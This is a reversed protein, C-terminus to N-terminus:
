DVVSIVPVFQVNSAARLPGFLFLCCKSFSLSAAPYGKGRKVARALPRGIRGTAVSAIEGVYPPSTDLKLADIESSAIVELDIANAPTLSNNMSSIWNEVWGTGSGAVLQSSRIPPIPILKHLPRGRPLQDFSFPEQAMEICHSFHSARV